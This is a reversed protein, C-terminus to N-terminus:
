SHLTSLVTRSSVELVSYGSGCGLNYAKFVGTNESLLKDVATTHGEALDMIHIYDRVGLCTYLYLSVPNKRVKKPNNRAILENLKERKVANDCYFNLFYPSCISIIKELTNYEYQLM